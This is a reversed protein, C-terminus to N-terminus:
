VAKTLSKILVGGDCKVGSENQKRMFFSALLYPTFTSIKLSAASRLPPYPPIIPTPCPEALGGRNSCTEYEGVLALFRKAKTPFPIVKSVPPRARLGASPMSAIFDSIDPAAATIADTNAIACSFSGIATSPQAGSASFMTLSVAVRGDSTM